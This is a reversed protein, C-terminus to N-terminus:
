IISDIFKEADQLTYFEVDDGCYQVSYEGGGYFNFTICYGRYFYEQM